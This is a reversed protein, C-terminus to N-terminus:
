QVSLWPLRTSIPSCIQKVTPPRLKMAWHEIDWFEGVQRSTRSPQLGCGM